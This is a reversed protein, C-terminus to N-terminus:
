TPEKIWYKDPSKAFSAAANPVYSAIKFVWGSM